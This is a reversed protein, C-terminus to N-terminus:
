AGLSRSQRSQKVAALEAKTPLNVIMLYLVDEKFWRRGAGKNTKRKKKKPENYGMVPTKSEVADIGEGTPIPNIAAVTLWSEPGGSRQEAPAMAALQKPPNKKAYKAQARRDFYNSYTKQTWRFPHFLPDGPDMIPFVLPAAEPLEISHTRNSTLRTTPLISSASKMSSRVSRTINVSTHAAKSKPNYTMILCYLGRPQFFEKNM